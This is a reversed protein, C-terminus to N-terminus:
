IFGLVIKGALLRFAAGALRLGAIIWYGSLHRRPLFLEAHEPQTELIATMVLLKERLASRRAPFALAADLLGVTRPHRLAYRIIKEDRESGSVPRREMARCYLAVANAGAESRLLYRGFVRAEQEHRSESM